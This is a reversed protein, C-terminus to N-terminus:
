AALIGLWLDDKDVYTECINFTYGLNGLVRHILELVANSTPYGLTSPKATIGYETEILYKKFEHVFCESGQDYTIEIPGPYRSLWKTEVLNSISILRKRWIESDLVM